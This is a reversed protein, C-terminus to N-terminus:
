KKSIYSATLYSMDNEMERWWSLHNDELQERQRFEFYTGQPEDYTIYQERQRFEFSTGQPEDIPEDETDLCAFLNPTTKSKKLKIPAKPVKTTVKPPPTVNKCKYTAHNKKGCKGCPPCTPCDYVSHGDKKCYFCNIQRNMISLLIRKESLM